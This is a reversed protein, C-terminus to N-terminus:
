GHNELDQLSNELSLTDISLDRMLKRNGLYITKGQWVAKVGKGTISNFSEAEPVNINRKVAGKVIAEELPHESKKETLAARM